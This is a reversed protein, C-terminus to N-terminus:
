RDEVHYSADAGVNYSSYEQGAIKIISGSFKNRLIEMADDLLPSHSFDRPTTRIKIDINCNSFQRIISGIRKESVHYIAALDRISPYFGNRKNFIECVLPMAATQLTPNRLYGTSSPMHSIPMQYKHRYRYSKARNKPVNWKTALENITPLRGISEKLEVYKKLRDQLKSERSMM